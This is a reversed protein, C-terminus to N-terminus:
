GGYTRAQYIYKRRRIRKEDDRLSLRNQRYLAIAMGPPRLVQKHLVSDAAHIMTELATTDGNAPADWGDVELVFNELTGDDFSNSLEFVLYPHEAEEDAVQFFVRPHITKLAAQIAKRVEVAKM